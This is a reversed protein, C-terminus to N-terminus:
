ADEASVPQGRKMLMVQKANNEVFEYLPSKGHKLYARVVSGTIFLFQLHTANTIEAAYKYAEKSFDSTTVMAIVQSRTVMAIGVEKAVDGLGVKSSVRKCQFTWRSFLLHHGEATLDVEAHGTDASRLRIHRPNLGLDLIMRLALLELAVGGRHKDSGFLDDRIKELPTPLLKRIRHLIVQDFDPIFREVPIGLLKATGIVDGSKGGHKGSAKGTVLIWGLEELPISVTRAFQSEQFLHPQNALCEKLLDTIPFPGVGVVHRKRVLELFVQQALSLTSFEDHEAASIGILRKLLPDNIEPQDTNGRLIQAEFFWNKLTSHDTTGASLGEIGLGRLEEKLAVKTVRESRSKMTRIAEILKMGNKNSILEACFSQAAELPTPASAVAKGFSSLALPRVAKECLGTSTLTAPINTSSRKNKVGGFFLNAWEAIVAADDGGHKLIVSLCLRIDHKLIEPSFDNFSPLRHGSM